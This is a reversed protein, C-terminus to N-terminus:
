GELMYYWTDSMKDKWCGVCSMQCSKRGAESVKFRINKRGVETVQCRLYEEELM